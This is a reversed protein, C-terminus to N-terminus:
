KKFLDKLNRNQMDNSDVHDETYENTSLIHIHGHYIIFKYKDRKVQESETM